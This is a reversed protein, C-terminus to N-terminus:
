MEFTTLRASKVLTQLLTIKVLTLYHKLTDTFNDYYGNLVRIGNGQFCSSRQAQLFQANNHPHSLTIPAQQV